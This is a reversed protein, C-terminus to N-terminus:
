TRAVPPLTAIDDIDDLIDRAVFNDSRLIFISAFRINNMVETERSGIKAAEEECLLAYRMASDTDFKLYTDFLHDYIIYREEPTIASALGRKINNIETRKQMVYTDANEVVSDLRLFEEELTLTAARATSAILSISLILFLFHRYPM